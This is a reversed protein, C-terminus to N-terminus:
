RPPRNQRGHWIRTILIADHTARYRVVFGYKGFRVAHQRYDGRVAVGIGPFEALIAFSDRLRKLARRAPRSSQPDGMSSVLRLLDKEASPLLIFEAL